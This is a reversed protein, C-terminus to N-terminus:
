SQSTEAAFKGDISKVEDAKLATTQKSKDKPVGM